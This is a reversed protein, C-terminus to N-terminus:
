DYSAEIEFHDGNFTNKGTIESENDRLIHEETEFRLFSFHWQKWQVPKSRLLLSTCISALFRSRYVWFNKSSFASAGPKWSRNSTAYINFFGFLARFVSFWPNFCQDCIQLFVLFLTEKDKSSERNGQIEFHDRKFTNEGTIESKNM